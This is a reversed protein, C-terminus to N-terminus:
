KEGKGQQPLWALPLRVTDELRETLLRTAVERDRATGIRIADVLTLLDYVARSRQPLEFASKLLPEIAAGVLHGRATPWVVPDAETDLDAQLAPAAHATPVGKRPRQRHAPFAYRVGHTLFELLAAVNVRRGENSGARALGAYILRQVADHATSPSIQLDYALDGYSKDPHVALYLAVPVDLPRLVHHKLMTKPMRSYRISDALEMPTLQIIHTM